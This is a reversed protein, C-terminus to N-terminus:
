VPQTAIALWERVDEDLLPAVLEYVRGHYADIWGQEAPSLMEAVILHRDYPALTLTEFGLMDREDGPEPDPCVLVLNEIRIGYEGERYYGPENSLIVGATLAHDHSTKSIRQPGEHVNLFHGVGHGTGHDFDLGRQWLPQRAIADIAAGMTGKPFRAMAVALHSKLVLTYHVCMQPSPRGLAVTRTIDTTGDPYQGGSDILFLNDSALPIDSAATARYHVIAGHPGMGAIADFSDDRYAESQRRFYRLAEVARCETAGESVAKTDLWHLFRTMAVADRLHANRMGQQETSNKVAKAIEVPDAQHKVAAGAAELLALIAQPTHQPTLSIPKGKARKVLDALWAGLTDEDAVTVHDGWLDHLSPPVKRPDTFLAVAGDEQLVAFGLPLPANPIDRGRINLLWAVADPQTIIHAAHGHQALDSALRQCKEVSPEGALETDFAAFAGLPEAPKGGPEAQWLGDILNASLPKLTLGRRAVAKELRKLSGATHLWPDYGIVSGRSLTDGLFHALATNKYDPFVYAEQACQERVQLTYRGDVIVAAAKDTVAAMGASGTFGTLWVLREDGPPVQEGQFRDSRPVLFADIKAAKMARRLAKLRTLQLPAAPPNMVPSPSTSHQWAQWIEDWIPADHPIGAAAQLSVLYTDRDALGAPRPLAHLGELWARAPGDNLTPSAKALGRTLHDVDFLATKPPVADDLM